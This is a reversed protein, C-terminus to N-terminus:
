DGQPAAQQAPGGSGGGALIGSNADPPASPGDGGSHDSPTGGGQQPDAAGTVPQGSAVQGAAPPDQPREAPGGGQQAPQAGAVDHGSTDAANHSSSLDSQSDAPGAAARGPGSGTPEGTAHPSSASAVLSVKPSTGRIRTAPATLAVQQAGLRPALATTAAQGTPAERHATPESSPQLTHTVGLTATVGIVAIVKAATAAGGGALGVAAPTASAGAGVLWNVLPLPTLASAAARVGSRARFVLQRMATESIGMTLAADHGSRGEIATLTLARLQKEPLAAMAALAAGAAARREVLEDTLTPSTSSAPLEGDDYGRRSITDLAANHVVRHLWPRLEAIPPGSVLTTWAGLMAQQVVDDARDARVIRAAHSGLERRYREFIATFAQHNGAAALACLRQDTQSRLVM